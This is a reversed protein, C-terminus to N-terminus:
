KIVEKKRLKAYHSIIENGLNLPNLIFSWLTSISKDLKDLGSKIISHPFQPYLFLNGAFSSLFPQSFDHLHPM